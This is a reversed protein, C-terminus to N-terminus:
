RDPEDLHRTLLDTIVTQGAALKAYNAQMAKDLNTHSAQIAKDLSAYTAQMERTVKAYTAQLDRDVKAFGAQMQSEIRDLRQGHEDLKAGQELQTQRLAEILAKHTDLKAHFEFVDRDAGGALVRAAAADSRIAKVQDELAGVRTTMQGDLASVCAEIEGM